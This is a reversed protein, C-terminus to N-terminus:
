KGRIEKQGQKLPEFAAAILECPRFGAEGALKKRSSCITNMQSGRWVKSSLRPPLHTPPTSPPPPSEAPSDLNHPAPPQQQLRCWLSM